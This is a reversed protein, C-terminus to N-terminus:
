GRLVNKIGRVRQELGNIFGQSQQHEPTRALRSSFASSSAGLAAGSAAVDNATRGTQGGGGIVSTAAQAYPQVYQLEDMGEPKNTYLLSHRNTARIKNLVFTQYDLEQEGGSAVIADVYETAISRADKSDELLYAGWMKNADETLQDIDFMNRLQAATPRGRGSGGRPKGIGAFDYGTQMTFFNLGDQWMRGYEQMSFADRSPDGEPIYGYATGRQKQQDIMYSTAADINDRITADVIFKPVGFKSAWSEAQTVMDKRFQAQWDFAEGLTPDREEKEAADAEIDDKRETLGM